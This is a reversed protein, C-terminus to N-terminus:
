FLVFRWLLSQRPIAYRGTRRDAADDSVEWLLSSVASGCDSMWHKIHHDADMYGGRLFGVGM